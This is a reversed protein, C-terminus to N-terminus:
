LAHADAFPLFSLRRMRSNTDAFLCLNVKRRMIKRTTQFFPCLFSCEHITVTSFLSLAPVSSFASVLVLSCWLSSEACLGTACFILCESLHCSLNQDWDRQSLYPTCYGPQPSSEQIQMCGNSHVYSLSGSKAVGTSEEAEMWERSELFDWTNRPTASSAESFWYIQNVETKVEYVIKLTTWAPFAWLCFRRPIKCGPFLVQQPLCTDNLLMRLVNDGLM